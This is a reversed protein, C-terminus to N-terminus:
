KNSCCIAASVGGTGEEGGPGSGVGEGSTSDGSGGVGGSDGTSAGADGASSAGAGDDGGVGSASAGGGQVKVIELALEMQDLDVVVATVMEMMRFESTRITVKNPKGNM